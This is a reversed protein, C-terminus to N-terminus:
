SLQIKQASLAGPAGTLTAMTAAAPLTWVAVQEGAYAADLSGAVFEADFPVTLTITRGLKTM